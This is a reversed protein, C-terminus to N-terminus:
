DQTALFADLQELRQRVDRHAFFIGFPTALIIFLLFDLSLLNTMAMGILILVWAIKGISATVSHFSRLIRKLEARYLLAFDCSDKSSRLKKLAVYNWCHTPEL